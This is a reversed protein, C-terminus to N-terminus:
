RVVGGVIACLRVAVPRAGSRVPRMAIIASGEPMRGQVGTEIEQLRIREFPQALQERADRGIRRATLDRQRDTLRPM